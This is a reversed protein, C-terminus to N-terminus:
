APTGDCLREVLAYIHGVTELGEMDADPVDIGLGLNLSIQIDVMDLSDLGLGQLDTEDPVPDRAAAEEPVVGAAELIATSVLRRRESATM